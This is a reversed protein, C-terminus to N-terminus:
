SLLESKHVLSHCSGTAYKLKSIKKIIKILYVITGQRTTQLFPPVLEGTISAVLSGELPWM